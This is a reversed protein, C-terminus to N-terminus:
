KCVCDKLCIVTGERAQSAETSARLLHTVLPNDSLLRCAAGRPRNAGGRPRNAGGRPRSAGGSHCCRHANNICSLLKSQSLIQPIHLKLRQPVRRSQKKCYVDKMGCSTGMLPWYLPSGRGGAPQVATNPEADQGATERGTVAEVQVSQSQM